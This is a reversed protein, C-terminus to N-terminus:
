LRHHREQLNRVLERELKACWIPYQGLKTKVKVLPLGEIERPVTRRDTRKRQSDQSKLKEYLADIPNEFHVLQVVFKKGLKVVVNGVYKEEEFQARFKEEIKANNERTHLYHCHKFLFFLSNSLHRILADYHDFLAELVPRNYVKTVEKEKVEFVRVSGGSHKYFLTAYLIARTVNQLLESSSQVKMDPMCSHLYTLVFPRGSGGVFGNCKEGKSTTEFTKGFKSQAIQYLYPVKDAGWGAFIASVKFLKIFLEKTLKGEWSRIYEEAKEPANHIGNVIEEHKRFYKKVDKLMAKGNQTNGARIAFVNCSKM